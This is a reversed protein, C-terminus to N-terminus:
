SKCITKSTGWIEDYFHFPDYPTTVIVWDATIFNNHYRAKTKRQFNMPDLILLLEQYPLSNPRLEYLILISEGAYGEFPDNSSGSKFYPKGSKEALEIAYRTKGLGAGGYFWTIEIPTKPKEKRGAM